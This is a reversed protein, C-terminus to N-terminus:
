LLDCSYVEQCALVCSDYGKYLKLDKECIYYPCNRLCEDESLLWTGDGSCWWMGIVNTDISSAINGSTCYSKGNINGTCSYPSCYAVGPSDEICSYNGLPCTYTKSPLTECTDNSFNYTFGTPCYCLEWTYFYFCYLPSTECKGTSSNYSSNQPCTIKADCLTKGIPCVEGGKLKECYRVTYCSVQSCQYQKICHAECLQKDNFLRGTLSCKWKVDVDIKRVQYCTFERVPESSFYKMLDLIEQQKNVDIVRSLDNESTRIGAKQRLERETDRVGINGLRNGLGEIFQKYDQGMAISVIFLLFLFRKM